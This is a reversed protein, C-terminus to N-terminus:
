YDKIQNRNVRIFDNKPVTEEVVELYKDIYYEIGETNIYYTYNDKKFIMFIDKYFIRCPKDTLGHFALFFENNSNLKFEKIENRLETLENNISLKDIAKLIASNLKAANIPKAVFDVVNLGYGEIAKDILGSVFIVLIEKKLKQLFDIGSVGSLHVDLFIIDPTNDMLYIQASVADHFSGKHIMFTYSELANKLNTHAKSEDDIIIYNIKNM